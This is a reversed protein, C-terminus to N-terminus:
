LNERENIVELKKISNNYVEDLKKIAEEIEEYSARNKEHNLIDQRNRDYNQVIQEYIKKSIETQNNLLSNAINYVSINIYINKSVSLNQKIIEKKLIEYVLDSDEKIQNEINRKSIEEALKINYVYYYENYYITKLLEISKDINNSDDEKNRIINYKKIKYINSYPIQEIANDLLNSYEELDNEVLNLENKIITDKVNYYITIVCLLISIVSVINNLIKYNRNRTMENSFVGIYIFTIVLIHMFTMDFDIFSKILIFYISMLVTIKEVEIKRYNTIGYYIMLLMIGIISIFGIIGFEFFIEIIYCHIQMASYNYQQVENYRYQWSNGGMGFLWNAKILKLADISYVFRESACIDNLNIIDKMRNAFNAPLYQYNLPYEKGNIYFYNIVLGQQAYPQNTKFILSFRTTESSTKIELEKIGQFNNLEITHEKVTDGYKNEEILKIIYVTINEVRSKANIDFKLKYESNPIIELMRYKIESTSEQNTFITLPKILQLGVIIFITLAIGIASILIILHKLKIKFICQNTKNVLFQLIATIISMIILAMWIILYNKNLLVREFIGSYIISLIGSIVVLELLEIRKQKEKIYICYLIIIAILILLTTRSYSLFIASLLIFSMSAYIYRYKKNSTLFEGLNLIFTFSVIAAFSNAYGFTSIMRKELNLSTVTNLKHTLWSFKQSTLDDIGFIVIILVGIITTNTIFKINRPNDKTLTKAIYYIIFITIYKYIYLVTDNLSTYTQFVLPIISSLMLLLVFLDLKNEILNSENFYIKNVVITIIGLVSIIIYIIQFNERASSGILLSSMIICIGLAILLIMGLIKKM